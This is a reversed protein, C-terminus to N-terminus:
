AYGHVLSPHDWGATRCGGDYVSQLFGLLAERPDDLKRLDDYDLVALAGGNRTIWRAADPMLPTEMLGAPEPYAYGYFAPHPYADDGPWFGTSINQHSYAEIDSQRGSELPAAEGSFRTSVLDFSHWYLQVPTQKGVFRTRYVEFVSGIACLARWFTTVADHDYARDATDKAFPVTSKNDYPKAVIRVAIGLADLAGFLATHFGAVSKGPVSFSERGGDNTTIEVTHDVMDFFIEFARDGYPIRHTTLGRTDPYLTVHWWHNLKPHAAMRVKGIMQLFLHLTDKTDVWQDYPLPPLSLSTNM